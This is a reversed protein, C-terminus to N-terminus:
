SAIKGNKITRSGQIASERNIKEGVNRVSLMRLYNMARGM